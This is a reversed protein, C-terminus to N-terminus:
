MIMIIDNANFVILIIPICIDLPKQDLKKKKLNNLDTFERREKASLDIISKEKFYRLIPIFQIM